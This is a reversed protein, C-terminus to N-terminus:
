KLTKIYEILGILEQESLQGAFTQMLGKPYGKVIQANPNLISKRIYNDDAVVETGDVFTRMKGYLGSFGPGILKESTTNHCAVCRGAYVAQGIEALSLGKYPDNQLWDEYDAKSLVHVKALMASHQDGCYESCFIQFTGKKTAEFWMATYRGPIVDVKLRFAPIFFSHLVDRSTMILKIPENVPVYFENTSKRGSKYLFDWSWKQGVVHVELPNKPMNRMQYYVFAGWVFVVMFIIFPIFSWLFELFMNHSIYATKDHETKRRYKLTLGIMGGIVIVSSVVSAILLFGYLSDFYKAVETGQPPMFNNAYAKTLFLM